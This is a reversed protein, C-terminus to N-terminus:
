TSGGVSIRRPSQFTHAATIKGEEIAVFLTEGYVDLTVLTTLDNMAHELCRIHEYLVKSRARHLSKSVTILIAFCNFMVKDITSQFTEQRTGVFVSRGHILNHLHHASERIVPGGPRGSRAPLETM